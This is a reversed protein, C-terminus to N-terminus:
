ESLFVSDMNPKKTGLNLAWCWKEYAGVQRSQEKKTKLRLTVILYFCYLGSGM